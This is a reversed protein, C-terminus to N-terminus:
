GRKEISALDALQARGDRGFDARRQCSALLAIRVDPLAAEAGFREILGALAYRAARGCHECDIRVVPLPFESLSHSGIRKM